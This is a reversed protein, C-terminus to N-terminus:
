DLKGNMWKPGVALRRIGWCVEVGLPEVVRDSQAHSSRDTFALLVLLATTILIGVRLSAGFPILFKAHISRAFILLTFEGM